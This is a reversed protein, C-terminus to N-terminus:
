GARKSKENIPSTARYLSVLEELEAIRTSLKIIQQDKAACKKCATYHASEELVMPLETEESVQSGLFQQYDEGFVQLIKGIMFDSVSGNGETIKYLHGRNIGAITAFDIKNKVKNNIILWSVFSGLENKKM